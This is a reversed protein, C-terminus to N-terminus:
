RRGENILDKVTLGEGLTLGHTKGFTRLREIAELRADKPAASVLREQKLVHLADDLVEATSRYLGSRLAEAIIVEQDATLDVQM